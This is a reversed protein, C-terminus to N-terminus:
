LFQWKFHYKIFYQVSFGKKSLIKLMLFLFCSIQEESADSKTVMLVVDSQYDYNILGLNKTM